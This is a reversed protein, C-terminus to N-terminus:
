NVFNVDPQVTSALRRALRRTGRYQQYFYAANIEATRFVPPISRRFTANAPASDFQRKIRVRGQEDTVYDRGRTEM